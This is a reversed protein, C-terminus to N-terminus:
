RQQKGTKSFSIQSIMADLRSREDKNMRAGSPAVEYETTDESFGQGAETLAKAAQGLRYTLQEDAEQAIEELAEQLEQSHGRRAALKAFAETLCLDAAEEDDPNRIAPILKIHRQRILKELADEGTEQAVQQWLAAPDAMIHRLLAARIRGHEPARCEMSDLRDEYEALKGPHYLLVALVV